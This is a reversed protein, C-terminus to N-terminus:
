TKKVTEQISCMADRLKDLETEKALHANTVLSTRKREVKPFELEDGDFRPPMTNEEDFFM